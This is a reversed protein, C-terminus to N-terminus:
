RCGGMGEPEVNSAGFTIIATLILSIQSFPLVYDDSPEADNM